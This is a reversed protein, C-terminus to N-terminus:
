KSFGSDDFFKGAGWEWHVYGTSFNKVGATLVKMVDETWNFNCRVWAGKGKSNVCMRHYQVGSHNEWTIQAIASRGDGCSDHVYVYDGVVKVHANSDIGGNPCKGDLNSWSWAWPHEGEIWSQGWPSAVKDGQVWRTDASAPVQTTGLLAAAMAGVLTVRMSTKTM